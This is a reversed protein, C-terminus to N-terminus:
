FEIHSRKDASIIDTQAAQNLTNYMRILLKGDRDETFRTMVVDRNEVKIETYKKEGDGSPFFSLALPELNFEEAASDLHNTDATIRFDFDREGM